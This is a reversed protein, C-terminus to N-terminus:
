SGDIHYSGDAAREAATVLGDENMGTFAMTSILDLLVYDTKGIGPKEAPQHTNGSCIKRTPLRAFSITFHKWLPIRSGPVHSLCWSCEPPQCWGNWCPTWFWREITPAPGLTFRVAPQIWHGILHCDEEWQGGLSFQSWQCPAQPRRLSLAEKQAEAALYSPMVDSLSGLNSGSNSIRRRRWCPRLVSALLWLGVFHEVSGGSVVFGGKHSLYPIVEVGEGMNANLHLKRAPFLM